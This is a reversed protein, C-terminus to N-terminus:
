EGVIDSWRDRIDEARAPVPGFDVGDTRQSRRLTFRGNASSLVLGSQACARSALYVVGPSVQEPTYENDGVTRTFVRTAAVPAICNVKIDADDFSGSLQNMLGFVAAKSMGYAVLDNPGGSPSLGHGSTTLVIRGYGQRKMWPIAAQTVWLSSAANIAFIRNFSEPEIQDTPEFVVIGANNILVDVRGFRETGEAVLARCAEATSLDHYAAIASGGANNVEEVVADAVAPDSGRGDKGVGADHVIVTAGRRALELAYARGLGRGAGTVLAVQQDFRIDSM